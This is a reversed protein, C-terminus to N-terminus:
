ILGQTRLSRFHGRGIVLHDALVLDLLRCGAQLQRTFSLDAASAQLNGSPHNHAIVITTCPLNLAPAVVSRVQVPATTLTGRFIVQEALIAQDHNLFFAVLEEQNKQYYKTVLHQGIQTITTPQGPPLRQIRNLRQNLELLALIRSQNALGIGPIQLLKSATLQQVETFDHSIMAMQQVIQFVSNRQTGSGILVAFLETTTLNQAGFRQMRERLQM